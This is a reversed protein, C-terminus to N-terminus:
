GYHMISEPDYPSKKMKEEKTQKCFGFVRGIASLVGEKTSFWGDGFSAKGEKAIPDKVREDEKMREVDIHKEVGDWFDSRQHEHELGLAHGFEHIVLSRKNEHCGCGLNLMMTPKDGSVKSALMGVM